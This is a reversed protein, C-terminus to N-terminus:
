ISLAYDSHSKRDSIKSVNACNWVPHTKWTFPFLRYRIRACDSRTKRTVFEYVGYYSISVGAWQGIYLHMSLWFCNPQKFNKDTFKLSV